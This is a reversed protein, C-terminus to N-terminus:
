SSAKAESGSEADSKSETEATPDAANERREALEERLRHEVETAVQKGHEVAKQVVPTAAEQVTHMVERAREAIVKARHALELVRDIATTAEAEQKAATEREKSLLFYITGAGLIFGFTLFRLAESFTPGAVIVVKEPTQEIVKAM